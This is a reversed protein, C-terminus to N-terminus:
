LELIKAAKQAKFSDLRKVAQTVPFVSPFILRVTVSGYLKEAIRKLWLQFSGRQLEEM